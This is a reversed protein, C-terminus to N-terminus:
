YVYRHLPFHPLTIVRPLTIKPGVQKLICIVDNSISRFNTKSSNSMNKITMM